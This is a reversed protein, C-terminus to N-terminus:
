PRSFVLEITKAQVGEESRPIPHRVKARDLETRADNLRQAVYDDQGSNAASYWELAKVVTAWTAIEPHVEERIKSSYTTVAPHLDKYHIKVTPYSTNYQQKFLILPTSGAASSNYDWDSIEKWGYANTDTSTAREIKWPKSRKWDVAGAYEKQESAISITTIDTLDLMDLSRLGDNAFEILATKNFESDIFAYVDGAGPAATFATDVTFTYTANDYASIRNFEGQPAAGDTTRVIFLVGDKWQNNKWKSGAQSSDVVTSTTGGTATSSNWAGLTKSANQLLNTLLFDTM